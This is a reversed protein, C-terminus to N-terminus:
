VLSHRKSTIEGRPSPSLTSLTRDDVGSCVNDCCSYGGRKTQGPQVRWPAELAGVADHGRCSFEGILSFGQEILIRWLRRNYRNFVWGEARGSTSFIFAQKGRQLPLSRVLALIEKDHKGWYIGSGFGILDYEALPPLEPEPLKVLEAQLATAMARAITETNGQHKSTYIILAKM